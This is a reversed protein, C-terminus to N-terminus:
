NMRPVSETDAVDPLDAYDDDSDNRGCDSRSGGKEGPFVTEDFRVNRVIEVDKM